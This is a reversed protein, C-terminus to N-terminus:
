VVVPIAKWLRSGSMGRSVLGVASRMLTSLRSRWPGVCPGMVASWGGLWHRDSVAVAERRLAGHARTDHAM